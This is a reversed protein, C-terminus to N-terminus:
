ESKPMKLATAVLFSNDNIKIQLESQYSQAIMKMTKMGYGHDSNKSSRCLGSNKDIELQSGCSNECKTFLFQEHIHLSCEIWRRQDALLASTAEIANELGNMSFDCLDHDSITLVEPLDVYATFEIKLRQAREMMTIIIANVIPHETVKIPITLSADSLLQNLYAQLRKNENSQALEHIVNLNHHMNHKIIAMGELETQNHIADQIFQYISILSALLFLVTGIRPLFMYPDHTFLAKITQIIYNSIDRQPYFAMPLLSLLFTGLAILFLQFTRNKDYAELLVFVLLALMGGYLM